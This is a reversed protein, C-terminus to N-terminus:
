PGTPAPPVVVGSMAALRRARRKRENPPHACHVDAHADNGHEPAHQADFGLGRAAGCGFGVVGSGAPWRALTEAATALGAM